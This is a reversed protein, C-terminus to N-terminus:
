GDRTNNMETTIFYKMVLPHFYYQHQQTSQIHSSWKYLKKDHKLSLGDNCYINKLVSKWIQWTTKNPKQQVPWRLKSTPIDQKQGTTAGKIIKEGAINTIDSLFTIQLYIRCANLLQLQNTSSTYKHIDDM